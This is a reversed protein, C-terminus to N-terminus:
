WWGKAQHNMEGGTRYVTVANLTSKITNGNGDKAAASIIFPTACLFFGIKKM